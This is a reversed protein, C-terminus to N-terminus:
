PNLIYPKPNGEHVQIGGFGIIWELRAKGGEQKVAEPQGVPRPVQNYAELHMAITMAATSTTTTTTIVLFILLLQPLM